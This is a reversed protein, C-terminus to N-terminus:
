NGPTNKITAQYRRLLEEEHSLEREGEGQLDLKRLTEELGRAASAKSSMDETEVALPFEPFAVYVSGFKLRKLCRPHLLRSGAHVCPSM